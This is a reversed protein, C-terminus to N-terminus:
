EKTESIIKHVVGVSLGVKDAIKRISLGSQKHALISSKMKDDVRPRGLTKGQAKARQLGAKVREIFLIFLSPRAHFLSDSSSGGKSRQDIM